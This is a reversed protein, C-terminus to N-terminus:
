ADNSSEGEGPHDTSLILSKLRELEALKDDLNKQLRAYAEGGLPLRLPPPTMDAASLIAAAARAPDGAQRGHEQRIRAEIERTPLDQGFHNAMRLSNGSWETRFPGPEVITVAIGASMTEEHLAEAFGELAFKSAAYAGAGASAIQGAVSSMFFFHGSRQDRLIPLAARTVSVAAFFNTEMQERLEEDSVADLAGLMGFGANNVVVDIQGFERVAQAIATSVEAPHTVDLQLPLLRGSSDPDLHRLREPKRATAAVREGADLAAQVLARGLGSSSGTVFWVRGQTLAMTGRKGADREPVGGGNHVRAQKWRFKIPSYDAYHQAHAKTIATRLVLSCLV